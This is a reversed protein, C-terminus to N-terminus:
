HLQADLFDLSPGTADDAYAIGHRDGPYEVTQVRGGRDGLAGAMAYMQNVPVLENSSNMLLTPPPTGNVAPVAAQPSADAALRRCSPQTTDCGLFGSIYGALEPDDLLPPLDYPGSWEVVAQLPAGGRLAASMLLHAGASEGWGAIRGPDVGFEAARARVANIADAVDNIERPYRPAALNYDIVFGAYGREAAAIATNALETHDGGVWAGGHVFVIGPLPRGAPAASPLYVDMRQPGSTAPYSQDALLWVAAFGGDQATAPQAAGLLVATGLLGAVLLALVMRRARM